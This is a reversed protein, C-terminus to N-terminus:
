ESLHYAPSTYLCTHYTPNNIGDTVERVERGEKPWETEQINGREHVLVVPVGVGNQMKRRTGDGSGRKQVRRGGRGHRVACAFCLTPRMAVDQHCARCVWM